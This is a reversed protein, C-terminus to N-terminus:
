KFALARVPCNVVLDTEMVPYGAARVAAASTLTNSRYGAPVTVMNVRWFASYGADSPVADIINGQDSVMRPTGDSNMGTILVWIPQAALPNVGFDPYFVEKGRNWGTALKEGNELTAGATVIPCNVFMEVPMVPFGASRVDAASRLSGPMFGDPAMVMQVQWLDSYGPEGPVVDVINNQGPVFRPSGDANMGNVVVWIPAAVVDNGGALNTRDGFDYYRVQHGRYWGAVLPYTVSQARATPGTMGGRLAVGAVAAAGAGLVQRRNM